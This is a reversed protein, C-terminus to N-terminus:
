STGVWRGGRVEDGEMKRNLKMGSQTIYKKHHVHLNPGMLICVVRPIFPILAVVSSFVSISNLTPNAFNFLRIKRVPGIVGWRRDVNLFKAKFFLFIIREM